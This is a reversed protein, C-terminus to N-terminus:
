SKDPIANKQEKREEENSELRSYQYLVGLVILASGGVYAALESGTWEYIPFAAIFGGLLATLVPLFFKFLSVAVIALVIGAALGVLPSFGVFLGLGISFGIIGVLLYPIFYGILGGIVIAGISALVVGAGSLGPLSLAVGLGAFGGILFNIIDFIERGYFSYIVGLVFFVIPFAFVVGHLNSLLDSFGFERLFDFSELISLWNSEAFDEVGGEAKQLNWEPSDLLSAKKIGAADGDLGYFSDEPRHDALSDSAVPSGIAVGAMTVIAVTVLVTAIARRDFEVM